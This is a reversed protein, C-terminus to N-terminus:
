GKLILGYDLQDFFDGGYLLHKKRVGELVFGNKELVRGSAINGRAIGAYLKNLNFEEKAKEIMKAIAFSAAGKGWYNTEGIIYTLEAKLHHSNLGSIVTNGIHTTDDFIGYLVVDDNQLCSEVYARQGDFSFTKYQNDSYRVVEENSFWNVYSQTVQEIQLISISLKM